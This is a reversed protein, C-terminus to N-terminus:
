RGGAIVFRFRNQIRYEGTDTRFQVLAERIAGRVRQEGSHQIARAGTGGALLAQSAAEVTPFTLVISIEGSDLLHLGAAEMASEAAGPASLAFPGPGGASQPPALAGVAAMIRSQQNEERRSFIAIGMKGGPALVRFAQSLAAVPNGAFQFSNFGTVIDFSGDSWPLREMDGIRFDGQPARGRALKVSDPSADLGAVQAGREAALLAAGGPGCGVDLLRKGEGIELGDHVADYLPRYHPEVLSAWDHAGHRWLEGFEQGTAVDQEWSRNATGIKWLAEANHV